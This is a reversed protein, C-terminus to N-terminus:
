CSFLSHFYYFSIPLRKINFIIAAIYNKEAFPKISYLLSISLVQIKSNLCFCSRFQFFLVQVLFMYPHFPSHKYHRQFIREIANLAAVCFRSFIIFSFHESYVFLLVVRSFLSYFKHRYTFKISCLFM